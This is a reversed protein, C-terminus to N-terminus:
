HALEEFYCCAHYLMIHHEDHIMINPLDQSIFTMDLAWGTWLCVNLLFYLM